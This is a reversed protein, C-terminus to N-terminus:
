ILTRINTDNNDTDVREADGFWYERNKKHYVAISSM